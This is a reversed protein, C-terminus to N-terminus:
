GEFYLDSGMTMFVASQSCDAVWAMFIRNTCFDDQGANAGKYRTTFPLEISGSLVTNIGTSITSNDIMMTKDLLITAKNGIDHGAIDDHVGHHFDLNNSFAANGTLLRIIDVRTHWASSQPMQEVFIICRIQLRRAFGSDVTVSGPMADFYYSLYKNTVKRGIRNEYGTGQAINNIVVGYECEATAVLWTRGFKGFSQRLHQDCTCRYRGGLSMTTGPHGVQPLTAPPGGGEPKPDDPAKAKAKGKVIALTRKFGPVESEIADQVSSSAGSTVAEGIKELKRKLEEGLTEEWRRKNYSM